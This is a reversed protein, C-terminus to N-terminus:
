DNEKVISIKESEKTNEIHVLSGKEDDYMMMWMDDPKELNGPIQLMFRNKECDAEMLIGGCDYLRLWIKARLPVERLKQLGPSKKTETAHKAIRKMVEEYVRQDGMCDYELKHGPETKGELYKIYLDTALNQVAEETPQLFTKSM